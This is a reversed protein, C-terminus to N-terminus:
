QLVRKQGKNNIIEAKKVFPNISIFPSSQSLFSNGQYFEEKRTLGNQLTIIASKDDPQFSILKQNTTNQRFIKLPGKNQSSAILYKNDASKLKILARADGPIFLGSQLITQATFNGKGNGLLLLGNMADYRGNTVETGFDNGCVAIDLNGDDNFDDAIMGYLPALQAMAPLPIMEFKGNGTNKLFCSKFNTAHLAIADKLQEKTFLHNFDTEAFSKYTLFRKKLVPLQEMVDDRNQATYEKKNGQLDKLFVTSIADYSKNNDFDKAYISVPYETSARYFSNEGLNGIVYDIDGDNDFDGGAISNWWGTENQVGSLATINEFKGNKNKLFTVPMWEGALILDVWGDNDFDTWLADCVLGINKLEKAVENTVDTFKIVGNKSDNRYIFSSVPEPYRGPSVRGGIFIDLDGDNDFDVAKVCSKSTYNLPLALTDLAFNGKGDNTYLQDQYNKTNPAFENSGSTCYIDLDGDNDADFLLIGLNEPRPTAPVTIFSLEKTTFKGNPQQLFFRAPFNRNGGVFIDDLGNKDIDGAALGPGYQSFKHPLLREVNFDIYDTEQHSYNIGSFSTIDTFFAKDAKPTRDWNDTLNANKIDVKLLQNVPVKNIVQKTHNPWRIIVSDIVLTKGLGFHAKNDVTSLYGRYPSNEYVQTQKGEYYIEAWAGLGDLNKDNGKFQIDLYNVNLKGPDNVTNEYVFAEENINNIVYDLDGDNDLDVYVAGNSFSPEDMGWSKTVNEFKLNGSNKLAYNPIKIQPIQESLQERTAINYATNRFAAFDHDTIDKPYGNTIIIDRNGDNDFDAISPTWSWDTEAVGAYFGIDGFVPDGISDNDNVRPGMNLQLTNRVYQLMLGEWMMNRYINYNNGNMNKKKRYNEEANMDLALIDALGDNNIDAIDNGMANQSTHKFYQKVKESFTSNKNNIYLLDSGYFDNTVYIDKWGDKNIDVISVGLGYGPHIIGAEKSVNTFVPHKLSDNWDNRFLKDYDIHTTDLRNVSFQEIDRKALKNTLLFMDLDGDNDYDFFAANVSFTTDALGYEAAMEKFVPIKDADPGQNIYLLNKRKNPDKKINACLYIDELGDNNIDAVTVADFWEGQGNVKAQETIDKFSLGGKNLYLKNSVMSAAFYLDPLGDNNFDGVGVGSGNYLFELDIPNVSDNEAISNIFHINSKDSSIKKFLSPSSHCSFFFVSLGTLTCCFLM